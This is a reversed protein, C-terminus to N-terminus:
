FIVATKRFVYKFSYLINFLCKSMNCYWLVNLRRWDKQQKIAYNYANTLSVIKLIMQKSYKKSSIDNILALISISDGKAM